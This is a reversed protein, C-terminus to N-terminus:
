VLWRKVLFQLLTYRASAKVLYFGHFYSFYIGLFFLWNTVFYLHLAPPRPIGANEGQEAEAL